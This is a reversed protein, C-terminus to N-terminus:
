ASVAADIEYMVVMSNFVVRRGDEWVLEQGERQAGHEQRQIIDLVTGWYAVLATLFLIETKGLSPKRKNLVAKVRSYEKSKQPYQKDLMFEHILVDAFDQVAERCLHGLTTLQKESDSQWLMADASAWKDYAAPYKERFHQADLYSKVTQEERKTPEGAQKKLQEYYQFGSPTVDFNLSGRSGRGLRLLGADGLTEVDGVYITSKETPIGPHILGAVGFTEAVLFKQRKDHPTNRAAEVLLMLLEEQEKELLIDEFIEIGQEFNNSLTEIGSQEIFYLQEGNKAPQAGLFGQAALARFDHVNPHFFEDNLMVQEGHVLPLYLIFRNFVNPHPVSIVPFPESLDGQNKYRVLKQLLEKQTETLPNQAM